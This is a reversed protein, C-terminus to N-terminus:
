KRKKKTNVGTIPSCLSPSIGPNMNNYIKLYQNNDDTKNTQEKVMKNDLEELSNQYVLRMDPELKKLTNRVTSIAVEDTSVNSQMISNVSIQQKEQTLQISCLEKRAAFQKDDELMQLTDQSLSMNTEGIPHSFDINTVDNNMILPGTPIDLLTEGRVNVLGKDLWYKLKLAIQVDEITTNGIPLPYSRDKNKRGFGSVFVHEGKEWDRSFEEDEMTRFIESIKEHGKRQFCLQYLNLWRVGFMCPHIVGVVSILHRCPIKKRAPLGCSCSAFKGDIITIIRM